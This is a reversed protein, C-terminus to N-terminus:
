EKKILRFENNIKIIKYRENFLSVRKKLDGSIMKISNADKTQYRKGQNKLPIVRSFTWDITDLHYLRPFSEMFEDVYPLFPTFFYEEQYTFLDPRFGSIVGTNLQEEKLTTIVIEKNNYYSIIEIKNLKKPRSYSSDIPDLYYYYYKYKISAEKTNGINEEWYSINNKFVGVYNINNFIPLLEFNKGKKQPEFVPSLMYYSQYNDLTDKAITILTNIKSYDFREIGELPPHVMHFDGQLNFYKTIGDIIESDSIRKIQTMNRNITDIKFFKVYDDMRYSENINPTTTINKATKEFNRFLFFYNNKKRVVVSNQYNDLGRDLHILLTDNKFNKLIYLCSDTVKNYHITGFLVGDGHLSNDIADGAPVTKYHLNYKYITEAVNISENHSRSCSYILLIIWLVCFKIYVIKIKM